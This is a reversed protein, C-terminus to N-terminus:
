MLCIVTIMMTKTIYDKLSTYFDASIKRKNDKHVHDAHITLTNADLGSVAFSNWTRTTQSFDTSVKSHDFVTNVYNVLHVYGTHPKQAAHVKILASRWQWSIDAKQYILYCCMKVGSSKITVLKTRKTNTQKVKGKGNKLHASLHVSQLKDCCNQVSQFVALDNVFM